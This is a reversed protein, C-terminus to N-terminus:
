QFIQVRGFYRLSLSNGDTVYVLGDSDVAMGMPEYFQGELSGPTGFQMKFEGHPDFVTICAKDKDLVYLYDNQDICLSTIYKFQGRETGQSGITKLFIGESSFVKVCYNGCDAVYICGESDCAVDWPLYLDSEEHGFQGINRIHVLKSSLIQVRHNRRDCVLVEGSPSIAIGVPDHFELPKKGKSGVVFVSKGDPSFRQIRHGKGDVLLINGDDDVAVGRPEDCQGEPLLLSPVKAAPVFSRVKSGSPNYVHVGDWGQNDVVILQGSPSHALGWPRRLSTISSLFTGHFQLPPMATVAFPSNSIEENYLKIHLTHTGKTVLIYYLQIERKRERVEQRTVVMHGSELSLELKVCDLQANQDSDEAVTVTVSAEQGVTIWRLGSKSARCKKATISASYVTGFAKCAEFVEKKFFSHMNAEEAPSRPIQHFEQSIEKVRQEVARQMGIVQQSTGTQLSHNIVKLYSSLQGKAAELMDEQEQLSQLKGEAVREVEEKLQTRHIELAKQLDSIVKDIHSKIDNAQETVHTAKGRVRTVAGEVSGLQQRVPELSAVIADKCQHLAETLSWHTHGRHNVEQICSVCVLVKCDRCYHTLRQPKHKHCLQDHESPTEAGELLPSVIHGSYESWKGHIRRCDQCLFHSCQPCFFEAKSGPCKACMPPPSDDDAKGWLLAEQIEILNNIHFASQLAALGGEPVEVPKRCMPCALKEGSKAATAGLCHLCIVHMCGPLTKPERYTEFCVPCTIQEAIKQAATDSGKRPLSSM